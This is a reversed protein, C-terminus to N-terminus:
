RQSATALVTHQQVLPTRPRSVTAAPHVSLRRVLLLPCIAPPHLITCIISTAMKTALRPTCRARHWRQRATSSVTAHNTQAPTRIMWDAPPPAAAPQLPTPRIPAAHMQPLVHPFSFEFFPALGLLRWYNNAAFYFSVCLLAVPCRPCPPSAVCLPRARVCRVPTEEWGSVGLVQLGRVTGFALLALPPPTVWIM